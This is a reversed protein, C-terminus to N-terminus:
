VQSRAHQASHQAEDELRESMAVMAEQMKNRDSEREEVSQMCMRVYVHVHASAPFSRRDLDTIHYLLIMTYAMTM